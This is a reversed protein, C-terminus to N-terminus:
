RCSSPTDAPVIEETTTTTIIHNEERSNTVITHKEEKTTRIIRPKGDVATGVVEKGEERSPVANSINATAATATGGTTRNGRPVDGGGNQGTSNVRATSTADPRHSKRSANASPAPGAGRSSARGRSPTPGSRTTNTGAGRNSRGSTRTTCPPPSPSPSMPRRNNSPPSSRRPADRSVRRQSNSTKAGNRQQSRFEPTPSRGRSNGSRENEYSGHAEGDDAYYPHRPMSHNPPPSPKRHGTSGARKRELRHYRRHEGLTNMSRGPGTEGGSMGDVRKHGCEPLHIAENPYGCCGNRGIDTINCRTLNKHTEIWRYYKEPILCKMEVAEYYTIDRMFREESCNHALLEHLANWPEPGIPTHNWRSQAGVQIDHALTFLKQRSAVNGM